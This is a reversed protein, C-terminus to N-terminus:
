HEEPMGKRGQKAPTGYILYIDGNILQFLARTSVTAM